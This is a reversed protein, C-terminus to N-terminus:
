SNMYGPFDCGIDIGGKAEVGVEYLSEFGEVAGKRGGSRQGGQLSCVAVLGGGDM